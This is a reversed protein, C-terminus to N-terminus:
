LKTCFICSFKFCEDNGRQWLGQVLQVYLPCLQEEHLTHWVESQSLDTECAVGHTKSLQNAHVMYKRKMTCIADPVALINPSMFAGVERPSHHVEAGNCVDKPYSQILIIVSINGQHLKLM